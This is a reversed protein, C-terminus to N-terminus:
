KRECPIARNYCQPAQGALWHALIEYNGTPSAGQPAFAALIGSPTPPRYDGGIERYLAATRPNMQQRCTQAAAPDSSHLIGLCYRLAWLRASDAYLSGLHMCQNWAAINCSGEDAFGLSHMSEHVATFPLACAPQDPSILAEGTFFAYLGSINLGDMWFPFAAYKAPLDEPLSSFDPEAINLEDILRLSCAAIAVNDAPLVQIPHAYLPLWLWLACLILALLLAAIQRILGALARHLRCRYLSFLFRGLIWVVFSIAGWELLSFPLSSGIAHLLRLGPLSICRQWFSPFPLAALPITLALLILLLRKKM